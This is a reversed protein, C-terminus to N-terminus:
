TTMYTGAIVNGISGLVALMDQACLGIQKSCIYKQQGNESGCRVVYWEFILTRIISINSDPV